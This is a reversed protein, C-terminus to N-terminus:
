CSRKVALEQGSTIKMTEDVIMANIVDSWRHPPATRVEM